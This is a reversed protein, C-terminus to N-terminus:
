QRRRVEIMGAIQKEKAAIAPKKDAVLECIDGSPISYAKAFEKTCRIYQKLPAMRTAFEKKYGFEDALLDYVKMGKAISLEINKLIAYFGLGRKDLLNGERRMFALDYVTDSDWLSVNVGILEGELYFSLTHASNSNYMERRLGLEEMSAPACEQEKNLANIKKVHWEWASKLDEFNDEVVKIDSNKRMIYSFKKRRGSPLIGLYDQFSKPLDAISEMRPNASIKGLESELDIDVIWLIQPAGEMDKKGLKVRPLLWMAPYEFFVPGKIRSDLPSEQKPAWDLNKKENFWYDIVPM